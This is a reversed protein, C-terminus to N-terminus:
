EHDPQGTQQILTLRRLAWQGPMKERLLGYAGVLVTPLYTILHLVLGIALGQGKDVAFVTLATLTLYQFVGFRGPVSPVSIGAMLVVLLFLAPIFSLPLDFALFVLYNTAAGLFLVLLSYLTFPILIKLDKMRELNMAVLEVQDILWRALKGPWHATNLRRGIWGRQWYICALVGLGLLSLVGLVRMPGLLWDPLQIAWGLCFATLLLAFGDWIKEVIVTGLLYAAREQSSEGLYLVRVVDGVRAPFISNLLIGINLVSFCRWISAQHASRLLIRWRLAKVLLTLIVAGVALFLYEPRVSGFVAGVQGLDIEWLAAVLCGLSIVVGLWKRWNKRLSL